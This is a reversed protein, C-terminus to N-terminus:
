STKLIAKRALKSRSFPYFFNHFFLNKSKVGQANSQIKRAGEPLVLLHPVFDSALDAKM